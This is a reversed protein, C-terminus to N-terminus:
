RWADWKDRQKVFLPFICMRKRKRLYRLFTWLRTLLRRSISSLEWSSTSVVKRIAFVVRWYLSIQYGLAQCWFLHMELTGKFAVSKHSDTEILANMWNMDSEDIVNVQISPCNQLVVAAFEKLDMKDGKAVVRKLRVKKKLAKERNLKQKKNTPAM